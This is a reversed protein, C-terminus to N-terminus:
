VKGTQNMADYNMAHFVQTNPMCRPQLIYHLRSDLESDNVPSMSRKLRYEHKPRASSLLLKIQMQLILARPSYSILAYATTPATQFSSGSAECRRPQTSYHLYIVPKISFLMSRFSFINPNGTHWPYLHM